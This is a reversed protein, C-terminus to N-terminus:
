ITVLCSVRYCKYCPAVKSLLKQCSVEGGGGWGGVGAECKEKEGNCTDPIARGLGHM